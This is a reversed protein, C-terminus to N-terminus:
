NLLLTLPVRLELLPPGLPLTEKVTPYSSAATMATVTWSEKKTIIKTANISPFLTPLQSGNYFGIRTTLCTQTFVLLRVVGLVTLSLEWRLMFTSEKLPPFMSKSHVVLIEKVLTKMIRRGSELLSGVFRHSQCTTFTKKLTKAPKLLTCVLKSKM